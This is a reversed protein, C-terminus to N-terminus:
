EDAKSRDALLQATHRWKEVARKGVSPIALLETDTFRTLDSIREIGAKRLGATAKGTSGFVRPDRANLRKLERADELEKLWRHIFEPATALDADTALRVHEPDLGPVRFSTMNPDSKTACRVWSDGENFDHDIVGIETADGYERKAVIVDGAKYIPEPM